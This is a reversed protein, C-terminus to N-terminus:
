LINIEEQIKKKRLIKIFDVRMFLYISILLAYLSLISLEWNEGGLFQCINLLNYAFMLMMGLKGLWCFFITKKVNYKILGLPIMLFDDNLATLGFLFILFPAIKPHDVLYRQLKKLNEVKEESIKEAGCRGIFYGAMEGVLCGLSAVFGVLFPIFLNQRIFPLSSFCVVWTYPTPVPLLNGIVCVWFTILLGTELNQFPEYKSINKIFARHNINIVLDLSVITLAIM